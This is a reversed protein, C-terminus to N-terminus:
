RRGEPSGRDPGRASSVVISAYHTVPGLEVLIRDGHVRRLTVTPPTPSPSLVEAKLHPAATPKLWRPSQVIFSIPPSDTVVDTALDLDYNNVDVFLRGVSADEYLNIGVSEPISSCPTLITETKGLVTELAGKLGPLLAARTSVTSANFYSLGLNDRIFLVSGAGVARLRTAPASPGSPVGTLGALSSGQAHPSFNGDEGRRTGSNGTVILRGGARVWPTVVRAVDEVDLVEANAIILGRLGGLTEATLKWEPVPRYQCHLSGLAAGWGNYAGMHPQHDMDRFGAPTMSALISSSSYYLGVDTLSDRGGFTSRARKVFGFFERNVTEHQTCDPHGYQLMPLAHNALMEYYLTNVAGPSERYADNEGSLYLWVNMLRSRGHERGLKYFPAFRGAPPMMFGRSSTGMHWGPSLETSVLDVGGRVFGLSYLPIDNGLVALDPNGMQAAAEKTVRYYDNLAKTGTQRKFIKYARWIPDDLWHADNWQPARLDMSEGGLVALRERLYSRVDFTRVNCVGMAALESPGFRGALYDRFGVVSWLGFAHQIPPYGFNDWASFNDAWIGDIGGQDVGYLISSRQQDTWMPCATDKGFSISGVLHTQGEVEIALLGGERLPNGAVEDVYGFDISYGGLVDKSAGADYVRSKRPDGGDEDLYGAAPTGDPYTMARGGGGYVPHHRTYPWCFDEADFFNHAGAWRFEGGKTDLLDWSWYFRFVSRYGEDTPDGLELVFSTCTGFAEYYTIFKLGADHMRRPQDNSAITRQAYIGWSPDAFSTNFGCDGNLSQITAVDANQIILPYDDWWPRQQAAPISVPGLLCALLPLIRAGGRDHTKSKM